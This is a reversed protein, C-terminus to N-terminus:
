KFSYQALLTDVTFRIAYLQMFCEYMSMTLRCIDRGSTQYSSSGAGCPTDCCNVGILVAQQQRLRHALLTDMTLGIAHLQIFSEYMSM